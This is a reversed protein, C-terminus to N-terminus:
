RQSLDDIEDKLRKIQKRKEELESQRNKEMFEKMQQRKNRMKSSFHSLRGIQTNFFKQYKGNELKEVGGIYEGCPNEPNEQMGRALYGEVRKRELLNKMVVQLYHSDKQLLETNIEALISKYDTRRSIEEGNEGLMIADDEGYWSVLCEYLQANEPNTVGRKIILRTSDYFKQFDPHRETYDIQLGGDKTWNLSVKDENLNQVQRLTTNTQRNDEVKNKRKFIDLLGM